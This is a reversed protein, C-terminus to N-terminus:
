LPTFEIKYGKIGLINEVYDKANCVRCLINYDRKNVKENIIARFFSHYNQYKKLEQRGNGKIHNIELIEKITCSCNVCVPGGLKEIAKVRLRKKYDPKNPNYEPHMKRYEGMRERRIRALEAGGKHKGWNEDLEKIIFKNIKRRSLILFKLILNLRNIPLFWHERRYHNILQHSVKIIEALKRESGAKAIAKELLWNQKGKCFKVRRM